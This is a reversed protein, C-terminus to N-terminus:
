QHLFRLVRQTEEDLSSGPAQKTPQELSQAPPPKPKGRVQQIVKKERARRKSLASLDMVFALEEATHGAVEAENSAVLRKATKWEALSLHQYSGDALQLERAYGDGVWDGNRFLSIHSIDTPDYRFNYVVSRGERDVREIGSLEAGWYHLGFAPIGQSAIHRTQPYMRLFLRDMAPTFPPVPPFGSSQLGQCWVEHPTRNQLERHPTHQYRLILQHLLRNMDPYLLCAAGAAARLAKPDASQIAGAAVEKIQGSFNKFLREIIAGYRGKYPPRFV